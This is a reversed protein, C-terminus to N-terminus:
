YTYYIHIYLTDTSPFYQNALVILLLMIGKRGYEVSVTTRYDNDIEGGDRQVLFTTALDRLARSM